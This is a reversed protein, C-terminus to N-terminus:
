QGRQLPHQGPGQRLARIGGEWVVRNMGDVLMQPTGLADNLYFFVGDRESDVMALLNRGHYLYETKVEGQADAEGMLRGEFDYLFITQSGGAEKVVRQGLGNYTYEGVIDGGSEVRILRSQDDYTLAKSGVTAPNGNEDYAYSIVGEPSSISKLRNTGEEYSYVEVRGNVTRSVRNGVADYDYRITGFWGQAEGLRGQGDYAYTRDQWIAGQAQIQTLRGNTDYTYTREHDTDPNSVVLRGWLDYVNQIQGGNGTGLGQAVGFPRYSIGQWLVKSQGGYTTKIGSV